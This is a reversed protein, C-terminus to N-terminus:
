RGPTRRTSRQGCDNCTMCHMVVNRRSVVVEEIYAVQQKAFAHREPLSAGHCVGCEVPRRRHEDPRNTDMKRMAGFHGRSGGQPRREAQRAYRAAIAKRWRCEATWAGSRPPSHSSNHYRDSAALRKNDGDLAARDAELM